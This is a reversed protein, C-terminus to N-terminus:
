TTRHQNVAASKGARRPEQLPLRLAADGGVAPVRGAPQCGRAALLPPLFRPCVLLCTLRVQWHRYGKDGSSVIFCQKAEPFLIASSDLRKATTQTKQFSTSIQLFIVDDIM